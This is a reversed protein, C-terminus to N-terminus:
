SHHIEPRHGLQETVFSQGHDHPVRVQGGVVLRRRDLPKVM